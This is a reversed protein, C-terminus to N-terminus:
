QPIIAGAKVPRREILLIVLFAILLAIAEITLRWWKMIRDLLPETKNRLTDKRSSHKATNSAVQNNSKSQAIKSALLRALADTFISRDIQRQLLAAFDQSWGIGDGARLAQPVSIEQWSRGTTRLARIISPYWNHSFVYLRVPAHPEELLHGPLANEITESALNRTTGDSAIFTVKGAQLDLRTAKSASRRDYLQQIFEAATMPTREIISFDEEAASMDKPKQQSALALILIMIMMAFINASIDAFPTVFTSASHTPENGFM